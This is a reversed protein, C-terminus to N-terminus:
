VSGRNQDSYLAFWFLVLNLNPDCTLTMQNEKKDWQGMVNSYKLKTLQLFSLQCYYWLLSGWGSLLMLVIFACKMLFSVCSLISGLTLLSIAAGNSRVWKGCKGERPPVGLRWLPNMEQRVWCGGEANKNQQDRRGLNGHPNRMKFCPRQEWEQVVGDASGGTGHVVVSVSTLLKGRDQPVAHFLSQGPWLM